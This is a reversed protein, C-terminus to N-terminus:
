DRQHGYYNYQRGDGGHSVETWATPANDEESVGVTVSGLMRRGRRLSHRQDHVLEDGLVVSEILL